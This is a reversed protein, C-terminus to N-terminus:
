RGGGQFTICGFFKLEEKGGGWFLEVNRCPASTKGLERMRGFACRAGRSRGRKPHHIGYKGLRRRHVEAEERRAESAYYAM